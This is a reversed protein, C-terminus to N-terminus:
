LIIFVHGEQIDRIVVEAKCVIPVLGGLDGIGEPKVTMLDIHTLGRTRRQQQFLALEQM